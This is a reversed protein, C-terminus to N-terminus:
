GPLFFVRVAKKGYPFRVPMIPNKLPGTRVQNPFPILFGSLIGKMWTHFLTRDSNRLKHYSICLMPLIVPLITVTGRVRGANVPYRHLIQLIYGKKM